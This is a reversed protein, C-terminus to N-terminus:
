PQLGGEPQVGAGSGRSHLRAVLRVQYSHVVEESRNGVEFEVQPWAGVGLGAWRVHWYRRANVVALPCGVVQDVRLSRWKPRPIKFVVSPWSVQPPHPGRSSIVFREGM